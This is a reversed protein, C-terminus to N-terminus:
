IFLYMIPHDPFIKFIVFANHFTLDSNYFFFLWWVSLVSHSYPFYSFPVFTYNSAQWINIGFNYWSIDTCKPLLNKLFFFSRQEKKLKARKQKKKKDIPMRVYRGYYMLYISLIKKQKLFVIFCYIECYKSVFRLWMKRVMLEYRTQMISLITQYWIGLSPM